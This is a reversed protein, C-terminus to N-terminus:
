TVSIKVDSEKTFIQLAHIGFDPLYFLPNGGTGTGKQKAKAEVKVTSGISGAM